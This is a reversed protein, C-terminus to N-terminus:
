SELGVVKVETGDRLERFGQNVVNDGEMIGNFVETMSNFSQGTEIHLKQAIQKDGDDKVTFVYPGIDDNQIINTPIVTANDNKYDTLTLIVMMNLKLEQQIDDLNVEIIFTRNELNIVDSVAVIKSDITQEFAPLYVSASDGRRFKSVYRESVEARIYLKTLSVVRILPMGMMGFEGEKVPINDVSGNYPAKIRTKALETYASALRKELSEKRNKMELYQVESGVSQEWLRAQREFLINALELQTKVEDINREISESDLIMLTQGKTVRQGERVRIERIRGPVEASILINQRSAVSGRVEINHYFDKKPVEIISVLTTNEEQIEFSPDLLRIEGELNRINKQLAKQENRLGYLEEKKVELDTGSESCSWLFVVLLGAFKLKNVM